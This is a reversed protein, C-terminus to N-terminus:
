ARGRVRRRARLGDAAEEALRARRRPDLALVHRADGVDPVSSLPAGYRTMSYRSPRSRSESSWTSARAARDRLGDLVRHLRALPEALGVGRPDDVAVELGRVEEERSAAVPGDPDLEEVEADRLDGREGPPAESPPIVLVWASM